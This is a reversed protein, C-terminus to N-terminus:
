CLTCLYSLEWPGVESVLTEQCSGGLSCPQRGFEVVFVAAQAALPLALRSRQFPHAFVVLPSSPWRTESWLSFDRLLIRFRFAKSLSFHFRKALRLLFCAACWLSPSSSPSLLGSPLLIFLFDGSFSPPFCLAKRTTSCPPLFSVFYVQTAPYLTELGLTNESLVSGTTLELCLTPSTGNRFTLSTFLYSRSWFFPNTAKLDGCKLKM